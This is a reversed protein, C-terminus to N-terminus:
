KIEGGMKDVEEKSFTVAGGDDVSVLYKGNELPKLIKVKTNNYDYTKGVILKKNAPKKETPNVEKGVKNMLEKTLLWEASGSKAMYTGDEKKKVKITIEGKNSKYTYFAGDKLKKTPKKSSDTLIGIITDDSEDKNSLKNKYIKLLEKVDKYLFSRSLPLEVTSEKTIGFENDSLKVCTIKENSIAKIKLRRVKTKKNATYVGYYEEGVKIEQGDKTKM